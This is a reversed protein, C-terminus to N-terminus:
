HPFSPLTQQVNVLFCFTTVLVVVTPSSFVFRVEVLNQQKNLSENARDPKLYIPSVQSLRPWKLGTVDREREGIM